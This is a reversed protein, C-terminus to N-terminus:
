VHEVLLVFLLSSDIRPIKLTLQDADPLIQNVDITIENPQLDFIDGSLVYGLCPYYFSGGPL